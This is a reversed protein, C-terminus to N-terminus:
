SKNLKTYRAKPIKPGRKRDTWFIKGNSEKLYKKANMKINRLNWNATCRDKENLEENRNINRMTDM